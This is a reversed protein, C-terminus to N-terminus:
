RAGMHRTKNHKRTSSHEQSDPLHRSLIERGCPCAPEVGAEPVLLILWKARLRVPLPLNDTAYDGAPLPLPDGARRASALAGKERGQRRSPTAIRGRSLGPRAEKGM